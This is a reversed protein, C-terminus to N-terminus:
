NLKIFEFIAGHRPKQRPGKGLVGRLMPATSFIL